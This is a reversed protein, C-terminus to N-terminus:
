VGAGCTGCAGAIEAEGVEPGRNAAAVLDETARGSARAGYRRVVGVFEEVDHSRLAWIPRGDSKRFRPAGYEDKAQGAHYLEHEILACFSADEAFRAFGAFVTIVFDPLAGFWQTLQYEQRAKTWLRGRPQPIEASGIITRQQHSCPATTWLMGIRAAQLHAHEPNELSAGRDIFTERTWAELEEARRFEPLLDDLDKPPRPRNM